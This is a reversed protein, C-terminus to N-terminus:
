TCVSHGQLESIKDSKGGIFGSSAAVKIIPRLCCYYKDEAALVIHRATNQTCTRTELIV